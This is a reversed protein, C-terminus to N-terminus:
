RAALVLWRAGGVLCVLWGVGEKGQKRERAGEKTRAATEEATNIRSALLMGGLLMCCVVYLMAIDYVNDSM